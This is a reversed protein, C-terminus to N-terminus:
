FVKLDPYRIQLTKYVRSALEALLLTSNHELNPITLKRNLRAFRSKSCLLSVNVQGNNSLVRLYLCCGTSNLSAESYGVLEISEVNEFVTNIVSPIQITGM